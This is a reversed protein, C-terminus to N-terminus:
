GRGDTGPRALVLLITVVGLGTSVLPWAAVGRAVGVAIVVVGVVAMVAALLRVAPRMGPAHWAPRPATV